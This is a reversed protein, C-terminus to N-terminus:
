KGAEKVAKRAANKSTAGCELCTAITCDPNWEVRGGPCKKCVWFVIAVGKLVSLLNNSFGSLLDDAM